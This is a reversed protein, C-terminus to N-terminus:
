SAVVRAGREVTPKERLARDFSVKAAEYNASARVLARAEHVTHALVVLVGGDAITCPWSYLKLVKDM